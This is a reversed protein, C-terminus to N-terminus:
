PRLEVSVPAGARLDAGQFAMPALHLNTGVLSAPLPAIPLLQMSASAAGDADLVGIFGPLLPNPGLAATTLGDPRLWLLDGGPLPLAPGQGSLSMAVFYVSSAWTPASRLAVDVPAPAAVSLATASTTLDLEVSNRLPLDVFSLAGPSHEVDVDYGSLYPMTHFYEGQPTNVIYHNRVRLQLRAGAPVVVDLM